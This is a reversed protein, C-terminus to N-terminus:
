AIKKSSWHPSIDKENEYVLFLYLKKGIRCGGFNM